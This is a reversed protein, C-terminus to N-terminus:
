PTQVRASKLAGGCVQSAHQFSPSSPDIGSGNGSAHVKVFGSAFTPDPFNPVGNARMCKALALIRARQAASPPPPTARPGLLDSKCTRMARAFAPGSVTVGNVTVAASGGAATVQVHGGGGLDPFSPVGNARMCKSLALDSPSRSAYHSSTAASSGGCAAVLLACGASALWCLKPLALAM